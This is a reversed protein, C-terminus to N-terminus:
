AAAPAGPVNPILDSKPPPMPAAQPGPAPPPSNQAQQAQAMQMFADLKNNFDRLLEIRDDPTNNTLARCIARTVLQRALNFDQAPDPTIAEGKLMKGIQWLVLSRPADDLDLASKLDPMRLLRRGEDPTMLNGQVYEQITQRRAAPTKPLASEPFVQAVYENASLNVDKWEIRKLFDSGPVLVGLNEGNEYLERALEIQQEANRVHWDEFEVGFRSFRGDQLDDYSRIAAGSNLGAPKVGQSAMQSVGTLEYAKAYLQALWNLVEPNLVEPSHFTPPTGVYPVIGGIERNLHTTLIKSGQEVFVKFAAASLSEQAFRVVRNIEIQIGTLQEAIGKGYFGLLGHKWRMTEIPFRQRKFEGVYLDAGDICYAYRGDDADPSSPLHWASVVLINDSITEQALENRMTPAKDIARLLEGKQDENLDKRSRVQAAVVERAVARHRLMMRPEENMGDEDDVLIELPFVRESCIQNRTPDLYTHSHGNGFVMADIACKGAVKKRFESAYFCGDVFQTLLEAREQSDFQEGDTLYTPRIENTALRSAATEIVSEIVNFSFRPLKSPGSSAASVFGLAGFVAIMDPKMGAYLRAHRWDERVRARQRGRLIETIRMISPWTEGELTWWAWQQRELKALGAPASRPEDRMTTRKRGAM